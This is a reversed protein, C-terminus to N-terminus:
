LGGRRERGKANRLMMSAIGWTVIMGHSDGGTYARFQNQTGTALMATKIVQASELAAYRQGDKGIWGIWDKRGYRAKRQADHWANQGILVTPSKNM